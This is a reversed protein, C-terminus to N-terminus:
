EDDEVPTVHVDLIGDDPDILVDYKARCYVCEIIADRPPVRLGDPETCAPCERKRIGFRM